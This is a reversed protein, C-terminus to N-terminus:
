SGRQLAERLLRASEETKEQEAALLGLGELPLPSRPAIKQAQAFYSEASDLRDIRLLQDGLRCWIEVPVLPRTAMSRTTVLEGNVTLDLSAFEGRELYRRLEAQMAPLTTHFANTFAQDPAQGQRLLATLQGFRAKRAGNDAIM